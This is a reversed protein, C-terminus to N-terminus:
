FRGAAMYFKFGAETLLRPKGGKEVKIPYKTRNMAFGVLRYEKNPGFKMGYDSPKLDFLSCYKEFEARQHEEKGESTLVTRLTLTIKSEYEGYAISSRAIELGLTSLLLALNAPLQEQLLKAEAKNM